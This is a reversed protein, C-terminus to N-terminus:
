EKARQELELIGFEAFFVGRIDIRRPGDANLQHSGAHVGTDAVNPPSITLDGRQSDVSFAARARSLAAGCSLKTEGNSEVASRWSAAPCYGIDVFGDMGFDLTLLPATEDIRGGDSWIAAWAGFIFPQV